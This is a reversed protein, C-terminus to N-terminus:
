LLRAKPWQENSSPIGLFKSGYDFNHKKRHSDDGKKKQFVTDCPDQWFVILECHIGHHLFTGWHYFLSKTIKGSLEGYNFAPM